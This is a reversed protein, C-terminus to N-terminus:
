KRHRQCDYREITRTLRWRLAQALCNAQKHMNTGIAFKRERMSLTIIRRSCPDVNRRGNFVAM